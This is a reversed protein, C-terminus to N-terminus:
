THEWTCCTKDCFYTVVYGAFDNPGIKIQSGANGHRAVSVLTGRADIINKLVRNVAGLDGYHEAFYRPPEPPPEPPKPEERPVLTIVGGPTKILDCLKMAPM